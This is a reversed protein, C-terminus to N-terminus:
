SQMRRILDRTPRLDEALITYARSRFPAGRIGRKQGFPLLAHKRIEAQTMWGLVLIKKGYVWINRWVKQGVFWPNDIGHCFVLIPASLPRSAQIYILAFYPADQIFEQGNHFSQSQLLFGRNKGLGAIQLDVQNNQTTDLTIRGLARWPSPKNWARHPPTAILNLPM